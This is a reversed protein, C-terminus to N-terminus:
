ARGDVAQQGAVADGSPQAGSPQTATSDNSSAQSTKLVKSASGVQDRWFAHDKFMQFLDRPLITRRPEFSVTKRVTHMGRLGLLEDFGDKEFSVNEFDHGDFRPVELFEYVADMVEAPRKALVDYEVIMLRGSLDSFFGERLAIYPGGVLREPKMLSEARSYVTSREAGASFLRTQEYVNQRLLREISDIIWGVERVCCIVKADPYMSALLPLNATWHRNTDVVIKDAEWAEKYFGQVIGKVVNKKQESNILHQSEDTGMVSITNKVLGLVPSTISASFRPDQRLLSALLTSGSRPLGSICHLASM